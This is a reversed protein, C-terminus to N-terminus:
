DGLHNSRLAFHFPTKWTEQNVTHSTWMLSSFDCATERSRCHLNCNQPDHSYPSMGRNM